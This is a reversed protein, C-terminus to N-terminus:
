ELRVSDTLREAGAEFVFEWRGPMHFLWGESRFRGPGDAKISPRYNMGHKHEPMHADAKLGAPVSAGTRPCVLVELAFHAGTPIKAPITRYALVLTPAELRKAGALECAQASGCALALGLALAADLRVARRREEM